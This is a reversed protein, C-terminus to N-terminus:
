LRCKLCNVALLILGVNWCWDESRCTMKWVDDRAIEEDIECVVVYLEYTVNWMYSPHELRENYGRIGNSGKKSCHLIKLKGIM